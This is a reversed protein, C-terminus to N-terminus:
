YTVDMNNGAQFSPGKRRGVGLPKLVDNNM